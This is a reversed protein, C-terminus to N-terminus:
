KSLTVSGDSLSQIMSSLLLAKPPPTPKAKPLLISTSICILDSAPFARKLRTNFLTVLMVSDSTQRTVIQRRHSEETRMLHLRSTRNRKTAQKEEIKTLHFGDAESHLLSRRSTVEQFRILERLKHQLGVWGYLMAECRSYELSKLFKWRETAETNGLDRLLVRSTFVSVCVGHQREFETDLNKLLLKRTCCEDSTMMLRMRSEFISIDNFEQTYHTKINKSHKKMNTETTKRLTTEHIKATKALTTNVVTRLGNSLNYNNTNQQPINIETFAGSTVATRLVVSEGPGIISNTTDIRKTSTESLIKTLLSKKISETKSNLLGKISKTFVNRQVDKWRQRRNKKLYKVM